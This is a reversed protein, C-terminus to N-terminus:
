EATTASEADAKASKSWDRSGGSASEDNPVNNLQLFCDM